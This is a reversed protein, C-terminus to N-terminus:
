CKKTPVSELLHKQAFLGDKEDVSKNTSISEGNYYSHSTLEVDKTAQIIEQRLRRM